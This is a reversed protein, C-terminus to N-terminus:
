MIILNKQLVGNEKTLYTVQFLHLSCFLLLLCILMGLFFVHEPRFITQATQFTRHMQWERRLKDFWHGNRAGLLHTDALIMAGLNSGHPVAPYGCSSLVLCYILFENFFLALSSILIIRQSLKKLTRMKM